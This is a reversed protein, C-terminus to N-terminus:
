ESVVMRKPNAYWVRQWSSLEYKYDSESQRLYEYLEGWQSKDEMMEVLEANGYQKMFSPREM